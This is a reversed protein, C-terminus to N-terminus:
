SRGRCRAGMGLLGAGLLLIVSPEPISSSDFKINSIGLGNTDRNSITIGGIDAVTSAFGYTGNNSTMTLVDLEVGNFDFFAVILANALGQAGGVMFGVEQTAYPFLMSLAGQGWGDDGLDGGSGWGMIVDNYYVGVNNHAGGTGNPALQLPDTVNGTTVQDFSGDDELSGGPIVDNWLNVTTITQGDFRESFGVGDVTISNAYDGGASSLDVTRSASISGGLGGTISGGQASWSLVLGVAVIVWSKLLRHKVIIGGRM